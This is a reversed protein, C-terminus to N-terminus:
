MICLFPDDSFPYSSFLDFNWFICCSLGAWSKIQEHDSGSHLELKNSSNDYSHQFSPFFYM